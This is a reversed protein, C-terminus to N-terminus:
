DPRARRGEELERLDHTRGSAQLFDTLTELEGMALRRGAGLLVTRADSDRDESRLAAALDAINQPARALAAAELFPATHGRLAASVMLVDPIAGRAAGALLTHALVAHDDAVLLHILAALVVADLRENVLAHLLDQVAPAPWDDEPAEDPAATDGAAAVLLHALDAVPMTSLSQEVVRTLTEADTLRLLEILLILTDTPVSMESVLNVATAIRESEESIRSLVQAARLPDDTLTPTSTPDNFDPLRQELAALRVELALIGAVAEAVARELEGIRAELAAMRTADHSSQEGEDQLAQATRTRLRALEERASDLLAELEAARDVERDRQTRAASLAFGERDAELEARGHAKRLTTIQEATPPTRASTQVAYILKNLLPRDIRQNKTVAKSLSSPHLHMQGALRKRAVGHLFEFLCSKFAYMAPAGSFDAPDPPM